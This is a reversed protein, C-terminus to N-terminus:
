NTLSELDKAFSPYSIGVSEVEELELPEECVLQAILGSM